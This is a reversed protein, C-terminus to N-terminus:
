PLLSQMSGSIRLRSPRWGKSWISRRRRQLLILSYKYTLFHGTFKFRWHKFFFFFFFLLRSLFCCLFFSLFLVAWSVLSSGGPKVGATSATTVFAGRARELEGRAAHFLWLHSKVNAVYCRDWDEDEMNEELNMFDVIRTWGGNSFVVDLRGLQAAAESVLRQVDARSTLDAQIAIFNSAKTSDAEAKAEAPHSLPSLAQLDQLLSTARTSNHAYNIAIRYGAAAFTRAAAAGLGASSATILAVPPPTAM